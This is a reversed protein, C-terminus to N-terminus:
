KFKAGPVREFGSRQPFSELGAEMVSPKGGKADVEIANKKKLQMIAYNKAVEEDTPPLKRRGRLWSEWEASLENQFDDKIPPEFWRSPRSRSSSSNVPIEFYKNGFLDSGIYDGKFQRPKLSNVFNTIIKKWISRSPVQAM